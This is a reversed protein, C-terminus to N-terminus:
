ISGQFFDDRILSVVDTKEIDIAMVEYPDLSPNDADYATERYVPTVDHIWPLDTYSQEASNSFRSEELM